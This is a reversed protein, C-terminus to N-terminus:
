WFPSEKWPGLTPQQTVSLFSNDLSVRTSVFCFVKNTLPAQASLLLTLSCSFQEAIHNVAEPKITISNAKWVTEPKQKYGYKTQSLIRRSKGLHSLPLTDAQLAHSKLSVNTQDRSQTSARSFSIAVWELIKAQLVRQVSSAPLSCRYLSCVVTRLWLSDSM